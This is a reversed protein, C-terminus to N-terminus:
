MVVLRASCCFLVPFCDPASLLLASCLVSSSSSPAFFGFYFYSGLSSSALFHKVLVCRKKELLIINADIIQVYRGVIQVIEELLQRLHVFREVAAGRISMLVIRAIVVALAEDFLHEAAVDAYM